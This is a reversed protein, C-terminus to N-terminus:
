RGQVVRNSLDSHLPRYARVTADGDSRECGEGETLGARDLGFDPAMRSCIQGVLVLFKGCGKTVFVQRFIAVRHDRTSAGSPLIFQPEAADGSVSCPLHVPPPPSRSGLPMPCVVFIRSIAGPIRRRVSLFPMALLLTTVGAPLRAGVGSTTCGKGCAVRRQRVVILVWRVLILDDDVLGSNLGGLWGIWGGRHSM